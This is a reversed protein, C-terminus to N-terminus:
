HKRSSCGCGSRTNRKKYKRSKSIRKKTIRNRAGGNYLNNNNNNKHVVPTIVQIPYFGTIIGRCVVCEIPLPPSYKVTYALAEINKNRAFSDDRKHYWNLFCSEHCAHGCQITDGASAIGATTKIALKQIGDIQNVDQQCIYCPNDAIEATQLVPITRHIPINRIKNPNFAVSPVGITNWPQRGGPPTYAKIGTRINFGKPGILQMLENNTGTPPMAWRNQLAM